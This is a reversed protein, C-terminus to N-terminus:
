NSLFYSEGPGLSGLFGGNEDLAPRGRAAPPSSFSVRSQLVLKRVLKAHHPRHHTKTL